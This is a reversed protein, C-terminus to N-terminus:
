VCSDNNYKDRFRLGYTNVYKYFSDISVVYVNMNKENERKKEESFILSLSVIVSRDKRVFAIFIGM